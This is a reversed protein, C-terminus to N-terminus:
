SDEDLDTEDDEDVVPKVEEMKLGQSQMLTIDYNLSDFEKGVNILTRTGNRQTQVRKENLARYRTVKPGHKAQNDVTRLDVAPKKIVSADNFLDAPNVMADETLASADQELVKIAEDQRPTGRQRSKLAAANAVAQQTRAM